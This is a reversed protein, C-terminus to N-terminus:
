IQLAKRKNEIHNIIKGAAKLADPEIDFRGGYIDEMDSTLYKTLNESGTVQPSVGLVVYIGSAVAYTGISLAKESMWEPAAAAIPLDKIDVDMYNAVM